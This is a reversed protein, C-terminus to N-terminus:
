SDTGPAALLLSRLGLVLRPDSEANPRLLGLRRLGATALAGELELGPEGELDLVALESASAAATDALSAPDDVPAVIGALIAVTSREPSGGGPTDSSAALGIELRERDIGRLRRILRGREVAAADSDVCLVREAGWDLAAHAIPSEADGALLLRREGAPASAFAARLHPALMEIQSAALRRAGPALCNAVIKPTVRWPHSWDPERLRALSDDSLGPPHPSATASM